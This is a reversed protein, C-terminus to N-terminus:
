CFCRDIEIGGIGSKIGDRIGGRVKIQGGSALLWFRGFYRDYRGVLGM